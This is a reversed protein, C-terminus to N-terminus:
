GCHGNKCTMANHTSVRFPHPECKVVYPPYTFLCFPRMPPVSCRCAYMSFDVCGFRIVNQHPNQDLPMIPGNEEFILLSLGNCDIAITIPNHQVFKQECFNLFLINASNCEINQTRNEFIAASSIDNPWRQAVIQYRKVIIQQTADFILSLSVVLCM